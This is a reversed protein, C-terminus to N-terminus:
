AAGRHLATKRARAASGPAVGGDGATGRAVSRGGGEIGQESLSERDGRLGRTRTGGGRM